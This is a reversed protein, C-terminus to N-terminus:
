NELYYWVLGLSLADFIVMNRDESAWLKREKPLKNELESFEKVLLRAIEFKTKVGFQLFVERIQDRTYQEVPLKEGVAFKMIENVFKKTRMGMRSSDGNPNPAIVLSPRFYQIMREMKKLLRSNSIPNIRVVGFDILRRPNSLYVYGFGNANPYIAFVIRYKKQENNM